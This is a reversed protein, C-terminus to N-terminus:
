HSCEGGMVVRDDRGFSHVGPGSRCRSSLYGKGPLREPPIYFARKGDTESHHAVRIMQQTRRFRLWRQDRRVALCRPAHNYPLSLHGHGGGGCAGESLSARRKRVTMATIRNIETTSVGRLAM